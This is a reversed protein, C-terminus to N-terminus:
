STPDEIATANACDIPPLCKPIDMPIGGDLVWGVARLSDDERFLFLFQDSDLGGVRGLYDWGKFLHSGNCLRVGELQISPSKKSLSHVYQVVRPTDEALMQGLTECQAVLAVNSVGLCLFIM